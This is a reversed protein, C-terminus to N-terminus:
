SLKVTVKNQVETLSAPKSASIVVFGHVYDDEAGGLDAATYEKGGISVKKYVTDVAFPTKGTATVTLTTSAEVSAAPVLAVVYYETGKALIAAKSDTTSGILKDTALTLKISAIYTESDSASFTVGKAAKDSATAVYTITNDSITSGTPRIITSTYSANYGKIEITDGINFVPVTITTNANVQLSKPSTDTRSKVQGGVILSVGEVSSPIIGSTTNVSAIGSPTANPCDWVCENATVPVSQDLIISCLYTTSSSATITVSGKTVDDEKAKYTAMGASTISANGISYNASNYSVVYVTDGVNSVPVQVIAGNKFYIYQSNHSQFTAGSNSADVNLAIGSTDSNVTGTTETLNVNIKSFDWTATAAFASVANVAMMTGVAAVTAVVAGLLKKFKRNM